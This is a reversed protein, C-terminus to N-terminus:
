SVYAASKGETETRFHAHNIEKRGRRLRVSSNVQRGGAVCFASLMLLPQHFARQRATLHFSM